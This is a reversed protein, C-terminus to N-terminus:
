KNLYHDLQATGKHLNIFLPNKAPDFVIITNMEWIDQPAPLEIMVEQNNTRVFLLSDKGAMHPKFGQQQLYETIQQKLAMVSDTLPGPAPKHERYIYSKETIVDYRSRDTTGERQPNCAFLLGAALALFSLIKGM